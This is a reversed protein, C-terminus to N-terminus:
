IKEQLLARIAKRVHEQQRRYSMLLRIEEEKLGDSREQVFGTIIDPRVYFFECYKLVAHLSPERLGREYQSLTNISIGTVESMDSLRLNGNMRLEKMRKGIARIREQEETMHIIISCM